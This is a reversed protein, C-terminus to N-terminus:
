QPKILTDSHPTFTDIRARAAWPVAALLPGRSYKPGIMDAAWCLQPVCGAGPRAGAKYQAIRQDTLRM